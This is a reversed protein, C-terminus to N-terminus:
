ITATLKIPQAFLLVLLFDSVFKIVYHQISYVKGHLISLVGTMSSMAYDLRTPYLVFTGSNVLLCLYCLYSM